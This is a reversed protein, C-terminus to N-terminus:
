PEARDGHPPTAHQQRLKGSLIQRMLLFVFQPSLVLYRHWLRRPESLLRFLWEFGSKRMWRPAQPKTGAHFDFAAGVGLLVPAQLRGVHGAMWREQKPAGLGVWVVDAGSANIMRVVEEDEEATLDRFPPSYAGAIQLGPFRRALNKALRDPVGPAGGYFFHRYGAASSRECLALTFDPGYVRRTRRFGMARSILVLPMGDPAVLGAARHIALLRDDKQCEMIAHVNTFCAYNCERRSIWGEVTGLAAEMDIQSVPVGLIEAQQLITRHM